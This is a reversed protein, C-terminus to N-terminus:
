KWWLSFFRKCPWEEIWSWIGPRWCRSSATKHALVRVVQITTPIWEQSGLAQPAGWKSIWVCTTDKLLKKLAQKDGYSRETVVKGAPRELPLTAMDFEVFVVTPVEVCLIAPKICPPITGLDNMGPYTM